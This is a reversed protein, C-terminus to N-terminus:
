ERTLAASSSTRGIFTVHKPLQREFALATQIMVPARWHADTERITQPQANASLSAASPVVPYFDPNQILFQQQRIGNQRLTDLTLSENLRDYFIGFGGRIVNKPSTNNRGLAWAVGLRPALDGWESAHTQAEGRLGGSLTLDPRVRWDDQVFLGYDVQSISALPNGAALSFQSAGGGASRIQAPTLGGQIGLQTARYSSLSTFTFTGPYNQMAQNELSVARVLGGFRMTHAGSIYSTFNQFEYRNQHDFSNGVPSGGASFADLVTVTPAALGGSQNTNLIRFRFRTENVTKANLVGTEAFQLTKETSHVNFARDPLSFGGVGGNDNTDRAYGYRVTLTHNTSLQRDLKFNMELGTLPTVVAQVFPTVNLNADLVVANVLANENIDRREFDAFFSTKKGLPGGVEGEFQRRQYPPKSNVFPNRSNFAADSFQFLVDGHFEDSGPKTFIEVRGQGPRDFQAAFPNQNIRIERISQKPPLRGGTYGDIFFQGGNPGAAPGALAQLDATLDDRDDPLADLDAKQLVIADANSSPDTSVTAGGTDAAVTVQDSQTGLSLAIILRQARGSTVQYDAREWTAFGSANAKLQYTGPPLGDLQYRGAADTRVTRTITKNNSVTVAVNPILSASPDTVTGQLSGTGTQSLLSSSCSLLLFFWFRLRVLLM